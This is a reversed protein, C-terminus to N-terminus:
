LVAGLHYVARLELPPDSVPDAGTTAGLYGDIESSFVIDAEGWMNTSDVTLPFTDGVSYRSEQITVGGSTLDPSSLFFGPDVGVNDSAPSVVAVVYSNPPSVSVPAISTYSWSGSSTVSASALQLGVGGCGISACYLRVTRTPTSFAPWRGGLQTIQGSVQPTFRYGMTQPSGGNLLSAVLNPSADQLPRTLFLPADNTLAQGTGENLHFLGRLGATTAPVEIGVLELHAPSPETAWILKERSPAFTPDSNETHLLRQLKLRAVGNIVEIKNPDFIYDTATSFDWVKQLFAATALSALAVVGVLVTGLVLPLHRRRLFPSTELKRNM